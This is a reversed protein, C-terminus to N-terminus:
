CSWSFLSTRSSTRSLFSVSRFFSTGGSFSTRRGRKGGFKDSPDTLKPKVIGLGVASGDDCVRVERRWPLEKRGNIKIIRPCRVRQEDIWGSAQDSPVMQRYVHAQISVRV